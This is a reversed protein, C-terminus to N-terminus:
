QTQCDAPVPYPENDTAAHMDSADILEAENNDDGYQVEAYDLATSGDDYAQARMWAVFEARASDGADSADWGEKSGDPAVLFSCFGNVGDTTIETVPAVGSFTDAAVKHAKKLLKSDFSTVVIAHHRQYGM